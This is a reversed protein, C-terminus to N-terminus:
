LVEEPSSPVPDAGEPKVQHRDGLARAFLTYRRITQAYHASITRSTNREHMLAHIARRFGLNHASEQCRATLLSGLGVGAYAPHVALTKIIVTDITQGRRAQLVDPIGFIFGVPRGVHEALFILEPHIYPVLAHHLAVFDAESLPCYLFNHRFSAMTVAYIRQLEDGFRAGDMSRISVGEAGLRRAVDPIRPDCQGLNPNLASYYHALPAFGNTTFHAPWADPNDPELFFRPEVGRETLLRYRQWTSGDMPGVALTCGHAALQGCAHQLLSRAPSPDLAAYHGILGLRHGPYRPTGRWWLSCRAVPAGDGDVVMWHADANDRTFTAPSLTSLGPLACFPGWQEVSEVAILTYM